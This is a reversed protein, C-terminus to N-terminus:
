ESCFEEAADSLVAAVYACDKPMYFLIHFRPPPFFYCKQNANDVVNLM